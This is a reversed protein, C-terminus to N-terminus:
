RVTRNAREVLANETPTHPHIRSHTLRNERLVVKFELSIFASGNDTQIVPTAISDKRLIEVAAQAEMSVSGADMSVLLCHHVIYRSYEDIFVLLYFFRGHIRIYMIDSQWKEDPKTAWEIRVPDRYKVKRGAILDHKKLINYVTSPSLYAIDEDIMAYALERFGLKPHAKIYGVVIWEEDRVAYPNFRRDQSNGPDLHRYYWARAIGLIRLIRTVPFSATSEATMDASRIEKFIDTMKEGRLAQRKKLLQNEQTIEAIWDEIM